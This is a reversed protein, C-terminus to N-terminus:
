MSETFGVLLGTVAHVGRVTLEIVHVAFQLLYVVEVPFHLVCLSKYLGAPLIHAYHYVGHVLDDRLDTVSILEVAQRM